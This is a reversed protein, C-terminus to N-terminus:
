GVASRQAPLVSAAGLRAGDLLFPLGPLLVPEGTPATSPVFLRRERYQELDLLDLPDCVLALPVRHARADEDVQRRPHAAFWPVLRSRIVDTHHQRGSFTALREDALLDVADTMACLSEWMEDTRPFIGVWGDSCAFVLTPWPRRSRPPPEGGFSLVVTDFAGVQLACELLSVRATRPAPPGPERTADVLLALGTVV